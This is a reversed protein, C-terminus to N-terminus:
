ENHNRRPKHETPDDGDVPRIGQEILLIPETFDVFTEVFQFFIETSIFIRCFFLKGGKFFSFLLCKGVFSAFQGDETRIVPASPIRDAHQDFGVHPDLPCDWEGVSRFLCFGNPVGDVLRLINPAPVCDVHDFMVVHRISVVLGGQGYAASVKRAQKGCYEIKNSPVSIVIRNIFLRRGQL